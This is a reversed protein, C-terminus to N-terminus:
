LFIINGKGTEPVYGVCQRKKPRDTNVARPAPPTLVSPGEIEPTLSARITLLDNVFEDTSLIADIRKAIFSGVGTLKLADGSSQIPLPYMSMSKIARKFTMAMRQNGNKRWQHAEKKLIDALKKNHECFNM